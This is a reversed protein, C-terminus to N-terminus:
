DIKIYELEDIADYIANKVKRSTGSSENLFDFNFGQGSNM